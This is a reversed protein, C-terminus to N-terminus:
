RATATSASAVSSRTCAVPEGRRARLRSARVPLLRELIARMADSDLRATGPVPLRGRGGQRRSRREGPLLRGLGRELGRADAGLRLDDRAGVARSGRAPRPLRAWRRARRPRSCSAKPTPRDIRGQTVLNRLAQELSQM